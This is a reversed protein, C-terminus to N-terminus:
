RKTLRGVEELYHRYKTRSARNTGIRWESPMTPRCQMYDLVLPTAVAQELLVGEVLEEGPHEGLYYAMLAVRAETAPPTQLKLLRELADYNPGWDDTSSAVLVPRVLQEVDPRLPRSLCDPIPDNSSSIVGRHSLYFVGALALVTALALTQAVLRVPRAM